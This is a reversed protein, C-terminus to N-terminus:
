LWRRHKAFLYMMVTIFIAFGFVVYFGAEGLSDIPLATSMGFLQVIVTMPLFIFATVGLFRTLDNNKITLLSDNTERLDSFLARNVQVVDCIKEYEVRLTEWHVALASGFFDLGPPVLTALLDRHPRLVAQFELLDHNVASLNKVVEKERGSFISREIDRLRNGISDLGQDLSRYMERLLYFFIHGAHPKDKYRALSMETEFIKALDSLPDINEYHTTIIFNKGVVFDIEQNVKGDASGDGLCSQCIPFHLILYIFSSYVDLKARTSPSRLEQLAVPHLDFERAITALDEETPTELDIWIIDKYRLRKHMLENYRRDPKVVLPEKAM